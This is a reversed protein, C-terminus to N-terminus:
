GGPGATRDNQVAWEFALVLTGPLGLGPKAPPHAGFPTGVMSNTVGAVSRRRLGSGTPQVSKMPVLGVALSRVRVAAAVPVKSAPAADVCHIPRPSANTSNLAVSAFRVWTIPNDPIGSPQRNGQGSPSGLRASM